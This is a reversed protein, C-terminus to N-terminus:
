FLSPVMWLVSLYGYQELKLRIERLAANLHNEVTSKSLGMRDAIEQNSYGEFRSMQFAQRRKPSLKEVVQRLLEQLERHEDQMVNLPRASLSAIHRERLANKRVENYVRHKAIQFLYAQIPRDAVLNHRAEWLKEFSAQILEKASESDIQMQRLFGALLPQYIKYLRSFAEHDGNQVGIILEREDVSVKSSKM